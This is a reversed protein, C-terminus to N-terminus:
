VIIEDDACITIDEPQNMQQTYIVAGSATLLGVLIIAATATGKSQVM